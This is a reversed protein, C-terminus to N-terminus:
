KEISVFIGYTWIMNEVIIADTTVVHVLVAVFHITIVVTEVHVVDIAISFEKLYNSLTIHDVEINTM